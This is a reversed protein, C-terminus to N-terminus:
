ALLRFGQAPFHRDFAFARAIQRTRMVEFSTWDTLSIDLRSAATLAVMGRTHLDADIWIVDLLPYFADRWARVAPLGLRAQLLSVTELLVYSSTVLQSTERDIRDFAAVAARHIRDSRDLLAYLASTDAFIETM